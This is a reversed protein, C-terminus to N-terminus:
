LLFVSLFVILILLAFAFPSLDRDENLGLPSLTQLEYIWHLERKGLLTDRSGGRKPSRVWEIVMYRLQAVTHGSESFHRAIPSQFRCTRINSKHERIRVTLSRQTQGVYGLGCPCKLLYVVHDTQCNVRAHIDYKKGSRPHSFTPGVIVGSCHVCHGCRYMGMRPEGIFSALVQPKEQQGVDINKTLIDAINRSRKYAMLPKEKFLNSIKRDTQLISWHKNIIHRVKPSIASYTTVCPLRSQTARLKPKLLEHQQFSRAKQQFGTLTNRTYGRKSFDQILQNSRKDYDKTNSTNRRAYLFQGYPLNELLHQPHFSNNYLYAARDIPKSFLVIAGESVRLLVDLFHLQHQSYEMTFKITPCHTDLDCTWIFFIDDIFRFWTLVFHDFVVDSYVFSEEFADMFLNAYSPAVNSGMSIDQLQLYFTGEFYFYNKSLILRLLDVLFLRYADSIELSQLVRFIVEIGDDHPISTYLSGVDMSCLFAGAPLILDKIKTIFDPTDRLYSKTALALPQLHADLFISLPQFISGCGSVIPRGPPNNLDKHVKPSLYLHPVRPFPCDLFNYDRKSILNNMLTDYLISKIEKQINQCPDCDLKKYHSENNLQRYAEKLYLTTDMVVIAWGKDAHRISITDDKQLEKQVRKQELTLNHQSDRNPSWRIRDIEVEVM